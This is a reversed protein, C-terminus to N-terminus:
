FEPSARRYKKILHRIGFAIAILLPLWPALGVVFLVLGQGLEVLAGWSDSFTQGIQTTFTPAEAPDYSKREVLTLTVTTMSTLNKLLQLRGEFREVEERVRTLEKEVELIDKLQNTDSDLHELLRSETRKLNSIRREVDVYEETVDQSNIADRELYGLEKLDARFRDFDAVPIRIKWTGTRQWGPQGAIEQSAVYGEYKKILSTVKESAKDLDEVQVQIEATYIIKRETVQVEGVADIKEGAELGEALAGTEAPLQSITSANGGFDAQGGCGSFLLWTGFLLTMAVRPFLTYPM